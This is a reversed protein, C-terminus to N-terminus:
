LLMNILITILAIVGPLVKIIGIIRERSHTKADREQDERSKLKGSIDEIKSYVFKRFDADRNRLGALDEEILALRTMISNGGNGDRVVKILGKVNEDVLDLRAKLTALDIDNDRLDNSVAQILATTTKISEILGEYYPNNKYENSM